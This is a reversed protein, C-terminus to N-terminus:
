RQKRGIFNGIEESIEELAEVVTPDFITGAEQVIERKADEFPLSARYPRKSTLADLADAVAFIRAGLPIDAGKLGRPYGSGDFHEHHTGVIEAAKSLYGIHGIIERGTEPHRQMERREEQTLPGKKLLIADPVGIKGIDHLLAGAYLDTLEQGRIGLAHGLIVALRSVRILHDGTEHERADVASVFAEITALYSSEMGSLIGDLYTDRFYCEEGLYIGTKTQIYGSGRIPTGCHKCVHSATMGATPM